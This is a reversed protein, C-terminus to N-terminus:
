DDDGNNSYYIHEIPYFNNDEFADIVVDTQHYEAMEIIEPENKLLEIEANNLDYLKYTEIIEQFNYELDHVDFVWLFPNRKIYEIAGYIKYRDVNQKFFEKLKTQREM